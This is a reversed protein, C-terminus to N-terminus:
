QYQIYVPSPDLKLVEAPTMLKYPASAIDNKYFLKFGTFQVPESAIFQKYTNIKKAPMGFGDMTMVIQVEPRKIISQYNTVMHETFRDVILLRPSLHYRHVLQALYGSAYNIDGADFNGIESSPIAGDKMSFEPDIALHVNNMKLYPELRPLENSLSDHGVQVDLILIANIKGALALAKDVQSFPMRQRYKGDKGPKSQATVAIYEIAPQVPILSDAQQWNKIEVQLKKLVDDPPMAGLIGMHASYFNGYYAVIRKFPLIPPAFPYTTKVPWNASVMGHNLYLLLANYRATDIRPKEAVPTTGAVADKKSPIVIRQSPKEFEGCQTFTCIVIVFLLLLNLKSLYM